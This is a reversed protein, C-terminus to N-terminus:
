RCWAAARFTVKTRSPPCKSSPGTRLTWWPLPTVIALIVPGNATSAEQQWQPSQSEERTFDILDLTEPKSTIVDLEKGLHTFVREGELVKISLIDSDTLYSRIVYEIRESNMDFLLGGLILSLQQLSREEKAHLFATLENKRQYM